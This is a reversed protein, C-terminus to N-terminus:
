LDINDEESTALDAGNTIWAFTDVREALAAVSPYEFLIRVPLALRFAQRLRSVVQTALLSHGGLEFFNENIGFHDLSLVDAWVKSIVQETATRPAVFPGAIETKAQGPAPLAKRDIKGTPTLPWSDLVIFVSPVMYDPLRELLFSRLGRTDVSRDAIVYAILRTGGHSEEYARVLAERVSPSTRLTSEIEGLEIRFGRIKVQNDLRDLFELNGNALYRARDGTKYLRSGSSSFPDPVFKEATLEPRNLYGRALSDGGIYLEGPVGVPVLNLSRDLLHLRTNHIPRGITIQEGRRIEAAAANATAETPGYINWLRLNPFMEFSRAALQENLRDGGLLLTLENQCPM